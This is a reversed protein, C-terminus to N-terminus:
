KFRLERQEYGEISDNLAGSTTSGLGGLGKLQFEFFIGKDMEDNISSVTNILDQDIWERAVLRLRYCCSNFEVGFLTELERQHTFDYQYRGIASWNGAIPWAFSVDGQDTTRAIEDTFSGDGDLDLPDSTLPQQRSYRYSMNVIRAQDDFYRLTATGTEVKDANDQDWTIDANARLYPTLQATMRAAYASDSRNNDHQDLAVQETQYLEIGREEYFFIQGLSASFREIGSAADIFRTTLGVSLQNTDDIRDGGAFRTDRFLQSYGYTLESTDFDVTRKTGTGINILEDQNKRDSFLYFLRPEFTQIFSSGYREFYLGTDLSAQPVTFSPSSNAGTQLYEDDLQYHLSKMNIGPKFFGWLWEQNWTLGYDLRLRDGTILRNADKKDHDFRVAEHDLNVVFDAPLQYNGDIRIRPLQKYQDEASESLAQFATLSVEYLWNDTRYGAAGHQRLHSARKVELSASDLDRFYDVDSVETYDIRSYWRTSFGGQQQLGVVWRDQGKNPYGEQETIAGQAILSDTLDNSGGEDNALYGVSLETAFQSSLHRFEAELMEGRNTIVRPTLTMDYNPALNFYYPAAFDVSNDSTSITPFLFGSMRKDSIPFRLYPTYFVPVGKIHLRVHKGTGQDSNPDLELESTKLLWANSDPTCRTFSSEDLSMIDTDDLDIRKADGRLHSEHMLFSANTASAENTNNMLHASDAMVLLGPERIRVHGSVDTTNNAQDLQAEDARVQRYGKTLLVDGKLVARTEQTWESNDASARLPADEPTIDADEDTRTPEIYAGCCGNVVQKRQEATLSDLSVWDTEAASGTSQQRTAKLSAQAPTDRHAPRKYAAGTAPAEQCHWSQGDKSPQCQWQLHSDAAHSLTVPQSVLIGVTILWSPQASLIARKIQQRLLSKRLAM